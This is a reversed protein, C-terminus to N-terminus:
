VVILVARMPCYVTAVGTVAWIWFKEVLPVTVVPGCGNLVVKRGSTGRVTVVQKLEGAAHGYCGDNDVGGVVDGCGEVDDVFGGGFFAEDGAFHHRGLEGEVVVVSM